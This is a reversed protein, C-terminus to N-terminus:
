SRKWRRVPGNTGECAGSGVEGWATRENKMRFYIGRMPNGPPLIGELAKQQEETLDYAPIGFPSRKVANEEVKVAEVVKEEPKQEPKEEVKVATPDKEEEKKPKSIM